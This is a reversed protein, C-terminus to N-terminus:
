LVKLYAWIKLSIHRCRCLSSSIRCIRGLINHSSRLVLFSHLVAVLILETPSLRFHLNGLRSKVAQEQWQGGTSSDPGCTWRLNAVATPGRGRAVRLPEHGASMGVAAPGRGRAAHLLGHGASLSAVGAAGPSCGCTASTPAPDVLHGASLSAVGTATPDRGRAAGTPAPDALNGCL